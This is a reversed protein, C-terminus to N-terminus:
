NYLYKMKYKYYKNKYADNVEANTHDIATKSSQSAFNSMYEILSNSIDLQEKNNDKIPNILSILQLIIINCKYINIYNITVAKLTTINLTSINTEFSNNTTIFAQITTKTPKIYYGTDIILHDLINIYIEQMDSKKNNGIPVNDQIQEIMSELHETLPKIIEKLEKGTIIKKSIDKLLTDSTDSSLQQPPPPPPSPRPDSEEEQEPVQNRRRGFGVSGGHSTKNKILNLSNNM